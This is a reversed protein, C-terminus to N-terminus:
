KCRHEEAKGPDESLSINPKEYIHSSCSVQLDASRQSDEASNESIQKSPKKGRMKIEDDIWMFAAKPM